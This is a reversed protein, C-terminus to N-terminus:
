MKFFPYYRVQYLPSLSWSALMELMCVAYLVQQASVTGTNKTASDQPTIPERLSMEPVWSDTIYLSEHNLLKRLVLVVLFYFIVNFKFELDPDEFLYLNQFPGILNQQYFYVNKISLYKRSLRSALSYIFSYMNFLMTLSM